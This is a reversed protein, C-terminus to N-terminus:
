TKDGHRALWEVLRRAIAGLPWPRRPTGCYDDDSGPPKGPVPPAEARPNFGPLRPITGVHFSKFPVGKHYEVLFDVWTTDKLFDIVGRQLPPNGDPNVDVYYTSRWDWVGDNLPDPLFINMALSTSRFDWRIKNTEDLWPIDNDGYAKIGTLLKVLAAASSQITPYGVAQKQLMVALSCLDTLQDPTELEWGTESDYQQADRIAQRIMAVVKPRDPSTQLADRLADSLRDVGDAIGTMRSLAVVGAVTPHRPRATLSKHNEEAFWTAVQQCTASGAQQLRQFVAPYSAGSTFFNYNCYGTAFNAYPAVTHLVEVSMNFCNNFHIVAAKPAKLDRAMKLAQGLQWTSLYTANAPLGPFGGPLGPFGGPLVPSGDGNVPACDKDSFHWEFKGGETVKSWTQLRRNVDPLYGAGHGEIALVVAAAPFREHAFAVLGALTRESSFDHKWRSVLHMADPQLAPIDVLWSNDEVRDILAVVHTGAKAVAKLATLLPHTQVSTTQGDPFSSLVEDAGFPAYVALVVGDTRVGTDTINPLAVANEKNPQVARV